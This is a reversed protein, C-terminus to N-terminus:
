NTDLNNDLSQFGDLNHALSYAYLSQYKSHSGQDLNDINWIDSNQNEEVLYGLTKIILEPYQTKTTMGLQFMMREASPLIAGKGYKDIQESQYLPYNPNAVGPLIYSFVNTITYGKEVTDLNESSQVIRDAGSLGGSPLNFRHDARIARLLALFLVFNLITARISLKLTHQGMANTIRM